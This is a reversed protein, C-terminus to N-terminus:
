RRWAAGAVFGLGVALALTTYPRRAISDDLADTMTEAVQRVADAAEAGKEEVGAVVGDINKKARRWAVNGNAALLQAVQQTLKVVDDQLTSFDEQVNSAATAANKGSLTDKDKASASYPQNM